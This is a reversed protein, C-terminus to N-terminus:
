VNPNVLPIISQNFVVWSAGYPHRTIDTGFARTMTQGIFYFGDLVIAPTPQMTGVYPEPMATVPCGIVSSLSKPFRCM